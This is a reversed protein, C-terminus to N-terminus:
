LLWQDGPEIGIRKLRNKIAPRIRKSSWVVLATTTSRNVAAVAIGTPHSLRGPRTGSQGWAQLVAPPNITEPGSCALTCLLLSSLFVGKMAVLDRLPFNM